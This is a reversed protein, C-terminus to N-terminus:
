GDCQGMQKESDPKNQKIHCNGTGGMKRCVVYNCEEKHHFLVGNHIYVMNERDM